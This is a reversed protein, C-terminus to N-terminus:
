KKPCTAVTYVPKGDYKKDVADKLEDKNDIHSFYMRRNVECDFSCKKCMAGPVSSKKKTPKKGAKRAM